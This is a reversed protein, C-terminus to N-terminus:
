RVKIKVTIYKSTPLYKLRYYHKYFYKESVNNGPSFKELEKERRVMYSSKEKTYGYKYKAQPTATIKIRVKYTGKEIEPSLRIEGKKIRIQKAAKSKVKRYKGKRYKTVKTKTYTINVKKKKANDASSARIKRVSVTKKKSTKAKKRIRKLKVSVKKTKKVTLEARVSGKLPAEDRNKWEQQNAAQIDVIDQDIDGRIRKEELELKRKVAAERVTKYYENLSKMISNVKNEAEEYINLDTNNREDYYQSNLDVFMGKGTTFDGSYSSAEVMEMLESVSKEPYMSKLVAFVPVYQPAAFSSGKVRERKEEYLSVFPHSTACFDIENGTLCWDEDKFGGITVTYESNAPYSYRVDTIGDVANGSASLVVINKERAKKLPADLFTLEGANEDVVDISLNIIDMDNDVAKQLAQALIMNSVMEGNKDVVDYIHCKYINTYENGVFALGGIATNVVATGHNQQDTDMWNEKKPNLDEEYGDSTFDIYSRFNSYSLEEESDVKEFNYGSDIFCINVDETGPMNTYKFYSSYYNDFGTTGDDNLLNVTVKTGDEYAFDKPFMKEFTSLEELEEELPWTAFNSINLNYNAWFEQDWNYAINWHYNLLISHRVCEWYNSFGMLKNGYGQNVTGASADIGDLSSNKLWFYDGLYQLDTNVKRNVYCSYKRNIENYAKASDSETKFVLIYEGTEKWRYIKEAGYDDTLLDASVVITKSGFDEDTNKNDAIKGVEDTSIYTVDLIEKAGENKVAAAKIEMDTINVSCITLVLALLFSVVNKMRKM